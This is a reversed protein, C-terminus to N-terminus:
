FRGHIIGKAEWKMKLCFVKSENSVRPANSGRGKIWCQLPLRLGQASRARCRHLIRHGLLFHSLLLTVPLFNQLDFIWGIFHRKDPMIRLTLFLRHPKCIFNLYTGWAYSNKNNQNKTTSIKLTEFSHMGDSFGCCFQGKLFSKWTSDTPSCSLCMHNLFM